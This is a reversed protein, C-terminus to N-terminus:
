NDVKPHSCWSWGQNTKGVRKGMTTSYSIRSASKHTEILANFKPDTEIAQNSLAAQVIATYQAAAAQVVEKDMASTQMMWISILILM